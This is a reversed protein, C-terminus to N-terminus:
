FALEPEAKEDKTLWADLKDTREIFLKTRDESPCLCLRAATETRGCNSCEAQEGKLGKYYSVQLRTGCFGTHKKSLRAKYSEPKKALTVGLLDWDM